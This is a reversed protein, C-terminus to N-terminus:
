SSAVALEVGGDVNGGDGLCAIGSGAAIVVSALEGLVLGGLSPRRLRFRRSDFVM